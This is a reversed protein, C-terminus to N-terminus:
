KVRMKLCVFFTFDTRRTPKALKTFKSTWFPSPTVTSKYRPVIAYLRVGLWAKRSSMSLTGHADSVTIKRRNSHVNRIRYKFNSSFIIATALPSLSYQHRKILIEGDPVWQAMNCKLVWQYSFYRWFNSHLVVDLDRSHKGSKSGSHNSIIHLCREGRYPECIGLENGGDTSRKECPFCVRNLNVM